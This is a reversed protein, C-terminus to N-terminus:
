YKDIVKEGFYVRYIMLGVLFASVLVYMTNDGETGLNEIKQTTEPDRIFFYAAVAIFNNVFHGIIPIWLSGTWFLLYGFLVGLMLRPLFGYFQLHMTSFLVASIFIGWHINRTINAFLKQLLGRFILEEGVAPILAIMFVNVFFGGWNETKLFAETLQMANEEMVKLQDELWALSEPFDMAANLKALLNILPLSFVMILVTLLFSSLKPSTKLNFYSLFSKESFIWIFIIPPIIFLGISQFIQLVKIIEINRETNYNYMVNSLESPNVDYFIMVTVYGLFMMVSFSILSFVFLGILRTFNNSDKLRKHPVM